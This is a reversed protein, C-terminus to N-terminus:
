LLCLWPLSADFSFDFGTTVDFSFEFRTTVDDVPCVRALLDKTGRVDGSVVTLPFRFDVENSSPATVDAETPFRFDTVDTSDLSISSLPRALRTMLGEALAAGVSLLELM